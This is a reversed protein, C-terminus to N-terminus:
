APEMWAAMTQVVAEREVKLQQAHLGGENGM